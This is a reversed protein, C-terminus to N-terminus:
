IPTNILLEFVKGIHEQFLTVLNAYSYEQGYGDFTYMEFDGKDFRVHIPYEPRWIIEIPKVVIGWGYITSYVRDGIKFYTNNM